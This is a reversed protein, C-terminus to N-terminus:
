KLKFVRGPESADCPYFEMEVSKETVKLRYHGAARTEYYEKLSPKFFNIESYYDDKNRIRKLIREAPTYEEPTSNKPTADTPSKETWVSNGTFECFSGLSNEFRYYTTSHTHGSLVIGRRKSLADFLRQRSKLARTGGGLRWRYTKTNAYTTFPGHTVIFVHRAALDKDIIDCIKNLNAKEFDCLIWLDPGKRFSLIPYNLPKKLKEGTLKEIEATMFPHAFDFYAKRAGKGRFDHNGVVTLFPMDGPYPKKLMKICDDLMKQHTPVHDCDGQIIDGLQLIFDTKNQRALAASAALLKPCRERWMAGNRKFEAHQVKSHINSEDYHSHYVSEPEADYHTDGLVAVNYALANLGASVDAVANTELPLVASLVADARGNLAILSGLSTLSGIVFDRRQISKM